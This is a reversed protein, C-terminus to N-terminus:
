LDKLILTIYNNQINLKIGHKLLITAPSKKNELIIMFIELSKKSPASISYNHFIKTMIMQWFCIPYDYYEDIPMKVYNEYYQVTNMYKNIIKSQILSNWENSENAINLLNNKFGPFTDYLLKKLKNRFIGRVSWIPTTDLFYPIDNYHAYNYIDQKFHEVLPRVINVGLIINSKKIVSLNLLNDGRCINAFINEIIDDKHHALLIKNLGYENMIKKYLMFKEQKTFTEYENRNISDRTVNFKHTIFKVGHYYCYEELFKEELRTEFRNNYNLHIAIISKNKKLLIDLLVMSDVGGSLSICYKDDDFKLHSFDTHLDQIKKYKELISYYKSYDM